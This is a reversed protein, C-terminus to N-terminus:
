EKNLSELKLRIMSAAPQGHLASLAQDWQKKAEARKGQAYYLDGRRDAYLAEFGPAEHALVALGQEYAEEELLIAALRLRAVATVVPDHATKILWELQEKAQEAAGREYLATAALLVGRSTYASQAYDDRLVKSAAELRALSDQDDLPQQAASELAEFYGMAQQAQYREYWQWGRWGLISAAILVVIAVILTGHRDWWDKLADLKEQEELDYAM